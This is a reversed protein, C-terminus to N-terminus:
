KTDWRGLERFSLVRDGAILLHDVLNLDLDKGIAKLRHTITWDAESPNIGGAPHNHAIIFATAGSLLLFSFVNKPYVICQDLTGESVTVGIIKNASNLAIVVFHEYLETSFHQQLFDQVCKRHTIPKETEYRYSKERVAQLTYKKIVKTTM